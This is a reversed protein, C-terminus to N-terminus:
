SSSSDTTARATNKSVTDFVRRLERAFKAQHPYRRNKLYSRFEATTRHALFHYLIAIKIGFGVGYGLVEVTESPDQEEGEPYEETEHNAARDQLYAIGFRVLEEQHNMLLATVQTVTMGSVSMDAQTFSTCTTSYDEVIRSGIASIIPLEVDRLTDSKLLALVEHYPTPIVKIIPDSM